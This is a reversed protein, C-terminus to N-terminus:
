YRGVKGVIQGSLQLLSFTLFQQCLYSLLSSVVVTIVVSLMLPLLDVGSSTASQGRGAQYYRCSFANLHWM